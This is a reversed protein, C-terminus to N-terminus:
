KIPFVIRYHSGNDPVIILKGEIQTTLSKIVTMGLGTSDEFNFDKPFGVGDDYLDLIGDNHILQFKIYFNGEKVPFAYKITNNIIETLILGLSVALDLDVMTDEVDSHIQIKSNYMKFLEIAIEPIYEGINIENNNSSSYLKEHLSAMYNLRLRTDGIVSLPDDPHFRLDLNLLSLIIQLNNKVRHHVEKVLLDKQNLENVRSTVDTFSLITGFEDGEDIM